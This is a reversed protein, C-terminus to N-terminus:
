QARPRAQKAHGQNFFGFGQLLDELKGEKLGEVEWVHVILVWAIIEQSTLDM